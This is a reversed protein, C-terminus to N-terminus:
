ELWPPSEGTYHVMRTSQAARQEFEVPSLDGVTSHRRSRNYLGEQYEFSRQACALEEREADEHRVRDTTNGDVDQTTQFRRGGRM